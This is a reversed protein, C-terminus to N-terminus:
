NYNKELAEYFSPNEPAVTALGDVYRNYLCFLAAIMSQTMYKPYITAGNARAEEVVEPTVYRGGQQVKAAIKLLSKIKDDAEM